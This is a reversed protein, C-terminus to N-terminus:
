FGPFARRLEDLASGGVGHTDAIPSHTPDLRGYVLRLFAEAPLELDPAATEERGPDDAITVGQAGLTVLLDRTPESTRVHVDMTSGTPKGAWGAIMPLLDLLPGAAAAPVTDAPDLTVAIDWTHLVHEALRLQLLQPFGLTTPGMPMAVRQQEDETLAEIQEVAARDATLADTAQDDPSKANWADWVEPAIDAGAEADGALVAELRRRMIEGGSGLHSLVDAITWESAYSGSRLQEPTLRGVLASLRDSSARLAALLPATDNM